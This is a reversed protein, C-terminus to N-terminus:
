DVDNKLKSISSTIERQTYKCDKVIRNSINHIENAGKKLGSVSSGASKRGPRNSRLTSNPRGSISLRVCINLIWVRVMFQSLSIRNSSKARRQGFEVPLFGKLHHPTLKM